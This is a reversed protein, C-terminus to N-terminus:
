PVHRGLQDDLRHEPRGLHEAVRAPVPRAGRSPSTARAVIAAIRWRSSAPTRAANRFAISAARCRAGLEGLAAFVVLVSPSRHPPTVPRLHTPRVVARPLLLLGLPALGGRARGAPLGRLLLPFATLPRPPQPAPRDGRGRARGRRRALDAAGVRSRSRGPRSRRAPSSRSTSRRGRSTASCRARHRESNGKVWEEGDVRVTVFTTQPDIEDTTVVCPGISLPRGGAHLDPRRERGRSGTPSWRTASSPPPRRRPVWPMASRAAFSRPSRRTSSSGDPARPGRSRRGPGFVPRSGEAADASRLSAPLLAALLRPRDVVFADAEDRELAARAADLM